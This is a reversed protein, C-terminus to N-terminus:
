KKTGSFECNNHGCTNMFIEKEQWQWWYYNNMLLLKVCVAIVVCDLNLLLGDNNIVHMTFENLFNNFCSTGM